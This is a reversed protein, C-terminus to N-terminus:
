QFLINSEQSVCSTLCVCRAAERQAKCGAQPRTTPLAFRVRIFARSILLMAPFPRADEHWGLCEEHSGVNKNLASAPERHVSTQSPGYPDCIQIRPFSCVSDWSNHSLCQHCLSPGCLASPMPGYSLACNQSGSISM